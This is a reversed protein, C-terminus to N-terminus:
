AMFQFVVNINMEDNVNFVCQEKSAILQFVNSNTSRKLAFTLPGGSGVGSRVANFLGVSYITNGFGAATLANAIEVPFSIDLPNHDITYYTYTTCKFGIHIAIQYNNGQKLIKCIGWSTAWNAGNAVQFTTTIDEIPVTATKADIYAKVKAWFHNLGSLSLIKM